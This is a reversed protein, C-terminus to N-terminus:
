RYRATSWSPCTMSTRTPGGRRARRGGTRGAPATTTIRNDPSPEICCHRRHKNYHREYERLAVPSAGPELDAHPRATGPPVIPDLTRDHLEDPAPARRKLAQEQVEDRPHPTPQHHPDHGLLGHSRPPHAPRRLRPRLPPPPHDLGPHTGRGLPPTPRRLPTTRTRKVIQIPSTSPTAPGTSCHAPTAPMPGSWGSGAAPPPWGHDATAPRRRPRARQGRHGTRLDAPRPHGRRYATQPRQDEQRRGLRPQVAVGTEAAKVSQSDIVAATPTATRGEALRVRQRLTDLLDTTVGDAAWRPSSTTSRRGPRSISRCRGGSSATTSWTSSRTWSRGVATRRPDDVKCARALGSRAAAPRHGGVACRDHGVSVPSGAAPWPPAGLWVAVRCM